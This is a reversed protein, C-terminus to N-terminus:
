LTVDIVSRTCVLNEQLVCPRHVLVVNNETRDNSFSLFFSASDRVGPQEDAPSNDSSLSSPLKTPCTIKKGSMKEGGCKHQGSRIVIPPWFYREVISCNNFKAILISKVIKVTQADDELINSVLEKLKNFNEPYFLAAELWKGWRTIVPEPLLRSDM